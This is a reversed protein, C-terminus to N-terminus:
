VASRILELLKDAFKEYASESESEAAASRAASEASWAASEAASWASRAASEAASRAASEASWAASEAASRASRAASEAASEASRAASEAASEAASRASRAASWAASEAASLDEGNRHALIMAKVAEECQVMAAKVEPFKEADYQAATMSELSSELVFILFPTKVAELDAGVAIADLFQEPWSKARENPLGEFITDECRALWEPIGLEIEYKSHDSDHITCGVACGKGHEWYQGKVIEDAERHARIRALYTDKVKQNDHFAKL